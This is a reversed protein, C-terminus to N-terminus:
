LSNGVVASSKLCRSYCDRVRRTQAHDTKLIVNCEYDAKLTNGPKVVDTYNRMQFETIVCKKGGLSDSM